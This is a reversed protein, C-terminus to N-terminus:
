NMLDIKGATGLDEVKQALESIPIQSLDLGEKHAVVLGQIICRARCADEKRLFEVQISSEIFSADIIKISAFFISTDVFVDAINRIPISQIHANFFFYHKVINVQSLEISIHDPFLDFPFVSSTTYLKEQSYNVLTDFRNNNIDHHKQSEETAKQKTEEIRKDPLDYFNSNNQINQPLSVLSIKKRSKKHSDEKSFTAQHM